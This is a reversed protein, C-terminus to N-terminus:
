FFLIEDLQESIIHEWNIDNILTNPHAHGSCFCCRRPLEVIEQFKEGWLWSVFDLLHNVHTLLMRRLFANLLHSVECKNMIFMYSFGVFMDWCMSIYWSIRINSSRCIELALNRSGALLQMIWGPQSSRVSLLHFRGTSVYRYWILIYSKAIVIRFVYSVHDDMMYILEFAKKSLSDLLDEEIENDGYQKTKKSFNVDKTQFTSFWVFDVFLNGQFNFKRTEGSTIIPSIGLRPRHSLDYGGM